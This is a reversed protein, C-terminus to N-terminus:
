TEFRAFDDLFALAEHMDGLIIHDKIRTYELNVKAALADYIKKEAVYRATEAIFKKEFVVERLYSAWGKARYKGREGSRIYRTAAERLQARSVLIDGNELGLSFVDDDPLQWKDPSAGVLQRRIGDLRENAYAIQVYTMKAM